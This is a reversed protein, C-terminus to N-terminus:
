RNRRRSRTPPGPFLRQFLVLLEPDGEVDITGRLMAAMANVEGKVIREFVRRDGRAVCDPRTGQRSVTVDGNAITVFWRATRKGNRLDIRITGSAKALRPDHSRARLGEFFETTVDTM